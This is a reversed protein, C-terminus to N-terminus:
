KAVTKEFIQPDLSTKKKISDAVDQAQYRFMYDGLSVYFNGDGAPLTQAKIFGQQALVDRLIDARVKSDTYGVRVSYWPISKGGLSKTDVKVVASATKEPEANNLEAATIMRPPTPEPVSKEIKIKTQRPPEPAQNGDNKKNREISISPARETVVPVPMVIITPSKEAVEPKETKHKPKPVPATPPESPISNSIVVPTKATIETPVPVVAAATKNKVALTVLALSVLGFLLLAIILGAANISEKKSSVFSRKQIM